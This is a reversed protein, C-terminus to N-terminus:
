QLKKSKKLKSKKALIKEIREPLEMKIDVVSDIVYIPMGYIDFKNTKSINVPSLRAKIRIGNKFLYSNWTAKMTEFDVEKKITSAKLEEPPYKKPDPTGRFKPPAEVAYLISLNFGLRLKLKEGPKVDKVLRELSKEMLVGNLVVRARLFTEDSLRYKNWEERDTKFDIFKAKSLSPKEWAIPQEKAKKVM